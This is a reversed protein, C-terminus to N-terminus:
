HEEEYAQEIVEKQEKEHMVHSATATAAARKRGVFRVHRVGMKKLVPYIYNWAGMNQPEEQVWIIEKVQQYKKLLAKLQEKALPYLQEIRVLATEKQSKALLDYYIRGSCLILRKEEGTGTDLVEEFTGSEFDALISTCEPHRLLGKPTMVILPIRIERKIQRRLLHFYQAPTTPYVVQMNGNGCLQLYRELRASSHEAGQGEHGHPLLLVLGSFRRWKQESVTLYQDIIVQAGNAFDGFQAEWLVLSYPASLSYGFEFGLVGFESLPSNYVDFRGQGKKLQSLPYYSVGSEQDVWVAHRQTFTGRQSDQGSLRVPTGELLLSAFAFHEALAWDIKGDVRKLREEVLKKLKPHIAFGDPITSFKQAIKKLEQGSIATEIRDFVSAKDAQRFPKWRDEFASELPKEKKQSMEDMELTLEKQFTEELQSVMENELSGQEVLYDRYLERVSKKKRILQYQKPQTFFPEDGENHGYKRYCFMNIFVDVHFRQRIVLALNAVFICAEPDDGNVHFVPIGFAHAVDTSYRMTRYESALTTFGIQNEICIHITGGTGYGKLGSFQLTEYVIGQGPLSADGHVLLPLIEIKQEDGREIQKAFTRGVVVPCVSELHSPNATVSLRVSHGGRASVMSSFGKHYKVDGDGGIWKPDFFDEFESFVMQYSKGLVNTLVNLRGRHAMGIIIERVGEEGGSDILENMIPILTESGELSFRKQGVYRKHLFLEFLEARNLHQFITQKQGISFSPREVEIRERIFHQLEYPCSMYEFGITGCYIQELRHIIKELSAEKEPLIGFTPFNKKLDATQLSVRASSTRERSRM